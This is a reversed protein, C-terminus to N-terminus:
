DVTWHHFNAYRDITDVQPIGVGAATNRHM